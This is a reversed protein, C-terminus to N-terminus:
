PRVSALCISYRKLWASAGKVITKSYPRTNGSGGLGTQVAISRNIGLMGLIVTYAVINSSIPDRRKGPRAEFLLGGL